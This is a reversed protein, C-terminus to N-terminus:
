AAANADIYMWLGLSLVYSSVGLGTITVSQGGTFVLGDIAIRPDAPDAGAVAGRHVLAGEGSRDEIIQDAIYSPEM